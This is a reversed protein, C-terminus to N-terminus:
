RSNSCTVTINWDDIQGDAYFAHSIHKVNHADIDGLQYVSVVPVTSNAAFLKVQLATNFAMGYGRNYIEGTMWLYNKGQKADYLVKAGLATEIKPNFLGMFEHQQATCNEQLASYNIQLSNYEQQLSALKEKNEALEQKLEQDTVIATLAVSVIFLLALLSGWIQKKM